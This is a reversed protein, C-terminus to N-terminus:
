GWDVAPTCLRRRRPSRLPQSPQLQHDLASVHAVHRFPEAHRSLPPQHHRVLHEGLALPLPVLAELHWDGEREERKRGAEMERLAASVRAREGNIHKGGERSRGTEIKLRKSKGAEKGRNGGRGGPRGAAIASASSAMVAGLQSSVARPTTRGKQNRPLRRLPQAAIAGCCTSRNSRPPENRM